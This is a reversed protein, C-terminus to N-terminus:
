EGEEELVLDLVAPLIVRRTVQAVVAPVPRESRAAITVCGLRESERLRVPRRIRERSTPIKLATAAPTAPRQPMVLEYALPPLYTVPELIEFSIPAFEV